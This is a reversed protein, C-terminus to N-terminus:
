GRYDKAMVDACFGECLAKIAKIKGFYCAYHLLRTGQHPDVPDEVAIQKMELMVLAPLFSGKMVRRRYDVPGEDEEEEQNKGDNNGDEEGTSSSSESGEEAEAM